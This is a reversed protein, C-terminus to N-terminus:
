STFHGPLPVNYVCFIVALVVFVVALLGLALVEGRTFGIM